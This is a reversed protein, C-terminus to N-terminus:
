KEKINIGRINMYLLEINVLEDRRNSRKEQRADNRARIAKSKAIKM